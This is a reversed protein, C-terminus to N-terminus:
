RLIRVGDNNHLHGSIDLGAANAARLNIEIFSRTGNLLLSIMGGEHCFKETEGVVLVPKGAFAALAGSTALSETKPVFVIQCGALDKANTALKLVFHRGDVMKKGAVQVIYPGFPDEGLIGIVVPTSPTAYTNTPWHVFRAIEVLLAAKVSYEPASTPAPQPEAGHLGTPLATVLCVLAAVVIGIAVRIRATVSQAPGERSDTGFGGSPSRPLM